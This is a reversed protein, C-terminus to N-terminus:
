RASMPFAPLKAIDNEDHQVIIKANLTKAITLLRDISALSEARNWNFPPVGHNALQEEFHVV